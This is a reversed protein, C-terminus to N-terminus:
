DEVPNAGADGAYASPTEGVQKRFVRGFYAPDEFGVAYAIEAVTLGSQKLLEKAKELRFSRILEVGSQNMLAKLKRHFQMRSMGMAEAFLEVSLESDAYRAELYQKVRDLFQKDVSTIAIKEPEIRTVKSFSERLKRRQAILNAVVAKLEQEEFPKTLYVDAGTEYGEVKSELGARATLLVVPIHSTTEQQKLRTCFELGDMEPMMVDSIVLDPITEAAHALGERGNAAGAVQYTDQLSARIFQQMDPNDEVVLVIPKGDDEKGAPAEQPSALVPAKLVSEDLVPVAVAEAQARDLPLTVTFVAGKGPTSEVGITGGMLEVLEKTLALGIGSGEQRRTASDDVQYYRDFIRPLQDAAIGPGTDAVRITWQSQQASLPIERVSLAIAGGVPTFKFANSLLNNVIKELKDRDYSFVAESEPLAYRYALRQQHALSEFAAALYRLHQVLKGAETKLAMQHMELQNLDLVQNILDRLRQGNRHMMALLNYEEAPREPQDMLQQLPGLILTLPTRFEHSINAFFRSKLQDM